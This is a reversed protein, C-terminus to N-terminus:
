EGSLLSAILGMIFSVVVMGIFFGVLIGRSSSRRCPIDAPRGANFSHKLDDEIM